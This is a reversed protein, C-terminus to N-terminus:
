RARPPRAPEIASARRAPKSHGCRESFAEDLRRAKRRRRFRAAAERREELGRRGRLKLGFELPAPRAIDKEAEGIMRRVQPRQNPLVRFSEDPQEPARGAFREVRKNAREADPAVLVLRVQHARQTAGLAFRRKQDREGVDAAEPINDSRRLRQGAEGVGGNAGRDIEQQALM